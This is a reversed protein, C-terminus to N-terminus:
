GIFLTKLSQGLFHTLLEIALNSMSLMRILNKLLPLPDSVVFMFLRVHVFDFQGILDEPLTELANFARIVM